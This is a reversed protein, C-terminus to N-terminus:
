LRSEQKDLKPDLELEVIVRDWDVLSLGLEIFRVMLGMKAGPELPITGFQYVVMIRVALDWNSEPNRQFMLRLGDLAGQNSGDRLFEIIGDTASDRQFM